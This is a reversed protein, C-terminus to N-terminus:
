DGKDGIELVSSRTGILLTINSWRFEKDSRLISEIDEVYRRDVGLRKWEEVINRVIESLVEKPVPVRWEVIEEFVIRFGAERLLTAWYEKDRYEEFRGVSRMAESYIRWFREYLEVGYPSPEAIVIYRAIRRAELLVDRHTRPDIEHLTFIFTAADCCDSRLPLYRADAQVVELRERSDVNVKRLEVDICIVFSSETSSLIANTSEGCGVDIVTDLRSLRMLSDYIQRRVRYEEALYSSSATGIRLSIM